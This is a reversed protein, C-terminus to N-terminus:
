SLISVSPLLSGMAEMVELWICTKVGVLELHYLLIPFNRPQALERHVKRESKETQYFKVQTCKLTVHLRTKLIGEFNQLYRFAAAHPSVTTM